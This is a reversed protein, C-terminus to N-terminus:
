TKCLTQQETIQPSLPDRSGSNQTISKPDLHVSHKPSWAIGIAAAGLLFSLLTIPPMLGPWTSPEFWSTLSPIAAHTGTAFALLALSRPRNDMGLEPSTKAGVIMAVTIIAGLAVAVGAAATLKGQSFLKAYYAPSLLALTMQVHLVAFVSAMLMTRAISLGQGARLRIISTIVLVLAALAFAKNLTYISWDSWSVGKFVHYRVTAYAISGFLALLVIRTAAHDDHQVPGSPESSERGGAQAQPSTMLTGNLDICLASLGEPSQVGSPVTKRNPPM